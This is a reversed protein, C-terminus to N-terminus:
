ICRAQVGASAQKTKSSELQINSEALSGLVGGAVTGLLVGAPGLFGGAAPLAVSGIKAVTQFVDWFSEAGEPQRETRPTFGSGRPKYVVSTGIPTPNGPESPDLCAM